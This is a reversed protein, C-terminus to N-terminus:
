GNQQIDILFTTIPSILLSELCPDVVIFKTYLSTGRLGISTNPILMAPQACHVGGPDRM